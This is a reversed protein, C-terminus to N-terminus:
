KKFEFIVTDPEAQKRFDYITVYQMHDNMLQKLADVDRVDEIVYLGGNKLHKHAILFTNYQDIPKHSGDDIIIDLDTPINQYASPDTSSGIILEVSPDDAFMGVRKQLIELAYIKAKTFYDKWLKISAGEYVGIELIKRASNKLSSFKPQYYENLYCHKGGKDTNYKQNIQELTIM